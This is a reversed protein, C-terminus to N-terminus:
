ASETASTRYMNDGIRSWILEELKVDLRRDLVAMVQEQVEQNEDFLRLLEPHSLSLLVAPTRTRNTMPHPIGDLFAFEGFFDGIDLTEMTKQSGDAIRILSEVSGRAIIYFRGRHEGESLLTTGAPVSDVRLSTRLREIWELPADAFLPIQRLRDATIDVVDGDDSVSIGSQKDWLDAYLGDMALLEHHSGMEVLRGENFVCVLDMEVCTALRHTVSIVTRGQTIRALTENVAAEASMDLASTAEDLLLMEPRRVLARALAIRQRQGGSLRRGGEGVDTDYGDSLAMIIDHVEAQRAAEEIEEDTADLRGLRINERITEHFLTTDQTVISMIARLDEEAIDRIDLGNLCIAGETVDYQRTILNLATSKGSGSPGVLAIRCPTDFSLNVQDLNLQDGVYSFSVNRFEITKLPSQLRKPEAPPPLDVPQSLLNEIRQLGGTAQILIPLMIAIGTAAGGISLLLGIFAVVIGASVTGSLSLWAGLGIVTLQAASIGFNTARSTLESYINQSISTKYLGQLREDFLERRRKGLAFVRIVSKMMTSEKIFSVMKADETKRVYAAKVSFQAIKRPAWFALSLTVATALALRWDLTFAVICSGILTLGKSLIGPIARVIANEVVFIDNSFSSVIDGSDVRNMHRSTLQQLKEFMRLRLDNLAKPGLYSVCLDILVGAASTILFGGVLLAINLKIYYASQREIGDDFLQHLWIPMMVAYSIQILIGVLLLSVIPAYPRLLRITWGVFHGIGESRERSGLSEQWELEIMPLSKGAAALASADLSGDPSMQRAFDVLSDAGHTTLMFQVFAAARLADDDGVQSTQLRRALGELDTASEVSILPATLERNDRRLHIWHLLGIGILGNASPPVNLRKNLLHTILVLEPNTDAGKAPMALVTDVVSGGEGAAPILEVLASELERLRSSIREGFIFIRRESM